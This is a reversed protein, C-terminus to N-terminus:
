KLMNELDINSISEIETDNEEGWVATGDELWRLIQGSSGGSPIHKNGSTTPHVYNNANDAINDLKTKDEISMLGDKLSTVVDYDPKQKILKSRDFDYLSDFTSIDVSSGSIENNYGTYLLNCYAFGLSSEASSYIAIYVTCNYNNSFNVSSQECNAWAYVSCKESTNGECTNIHLDSIIDEMKIGSTLLYTRITGTIYFDTGTKGNRVHMKLETGPEFMSGDSGNSNGVWKCQYSLGVVTICYGRSEDYKNIMTAPLSISKRIKGLNLIERQIGDSTSTAKILGDFCDFYVYIISGDNGVLAISNQIGVDYAIKLTYTTDQGPIGLAVIDEKTVVEADSVHGLEDNAFKYMSKSHSTHTPHIYNNANDDIGSLKRTNNDVQENISIEDGYCIINGDWDIAIANSRNDDSTGNGIILAYKDEADEVNYKGQM